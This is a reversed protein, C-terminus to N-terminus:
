SYYSINNKYKSKLDLTVDATQRLDAYNPEVTGDIDIVVEAYTGINISNYDVMTINEGMLVDHVLLKYVEEPLERLELKFSEVFSKAVTKELGNEYRVDETEFAASRNGFYAENFRLQNVWDFGVFDRTKKQNEDGILRNHTYEVRVTNDVALTSFTRLCYEESYLDFTTLDFHVRYKGEGFGAAGTDLVKRWDINYGVYNNNNRTEFALAYYTGYTNNNLTAQNTWAGDVLKQLYMTCTYQLPIIKIPASFDNKLPDDDTTDAYVNLPYCCKQFPNEEKPVVIPEELVELVKLDVKQVDGYDTLSPTSNVGISVSLTYELVGPFLNNYDIYFIGTLVSSSEGINILGNSDGILVGGNFTRDYVSSITENKIYTGTEKPILRAVMYVDTEDLIGSVDTFNVQITTTKNKMIYPDGGIDIQTAVDYTKINENTWNSGALYDQPNIITSNNIVKTKGNLSIQANLNYYIDWGALGSLRFWENNIGNNPESTDIWGNPITSLIINEWYEWRWLFPYQIRYAYKLSADDSSSRYCRFNARLESSNVNFPTVPNESIFRVGDSDLPKGILDFEEELLIVDDEGTKKAIIQPTLKDIQANPFFNYDLYILSEAVIEDEVKFIPTTVVPTLANQDHYLFTNDVDLVTDDIQVEATNLDIWCNTYNCLAMDEAGFYATAVIWYQQNTLTGLKAIVDAGLEIECAVAVTNTGLTSTANKFVQYGGGFNDGNTPTPTVASQMKVRDFCFNEALPQNRNQYDNDDEPLVIFNLIVYGAEGTNLAVNTDINFTLSTTKTPDIKQITNGYTVASPTFTETGGNFQESVWGVEGDKDDYVGEQYVNPDQLSRMARVRFVHKLSKTGRLYKPAIPFQNSLEQIQNPLYFPNIYFDQTIRFHYEYNDRQSSTTINEFQVEGIQWDLKGVGLMPTLASPLIGSLQGYDHRMLSGDVKSDYNTAEDNEILGFDYILGTPDQKLDIRGSTENAANLTIAGGLNDTVRISQGQKESILLGSTGSNNSSTGSIVINDGVNFGDFRQLINDTIWDQTKFDNDQFELPEASTITAWMESRVEAVMTVKFFIGGKCYDVDNTSDELSYQPAKTFFVPM